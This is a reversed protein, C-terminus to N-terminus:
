GCGCLCGPLPSGPRLLQRRLPGRGHRLPVYVRLFDVNATLQALLQVDERCRADDALRHHFGLLEWSQRARMCVYVHAGCAHVCM